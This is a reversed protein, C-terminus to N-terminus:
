DFSSSLIANDVDTRYKYGSQKYYKKATKKSKDVVGYGWEYFIGTYFTAEKVGGGSAFEFCSFATEYDQEVSGMGYYYIYGLCCAAKVAIFDNISSYARASIIGSLYYTATDGDKELMAKRGSKYLYDYIEEYYKAAMTPNKEVGDGNGYMMAVIYKAEKDGNDAVVKFLELALDRREDIGDGHYFMVALLSTSVMHGQDAAKLYYQAAESKDETVGLGNYYMWGLSYLAEAHNDLAALEYWEKAESYNGANYEEEGWQYFDEATVGPLEEEVTKSKRRNKGKTGQRKSKVNRATTAPKKKVQTTPTRSVKAGANNKIGSRSIVGGSSQAMAVMVSIILSLTLLLRRM